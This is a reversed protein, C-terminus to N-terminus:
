SIRVTGQTNIDTYIVQSAVGHTKFALQMAEGVTASDGTTFAIVSPGAGSLAAGLGGSTTVAEIVSILGPVLSARYPQHLKDHCAWRLHSYDGTCFASVLLAARGVNHTADRFSVKAPLVNRAKKTSLHFAPIAVVMNLPKTPKIAIYKVASGQMCAAVLGGFLAPAVNDPHGEMETAMDLLQDPTFPQGVLHNAAVLGGIIAAASSGLGRSLPINNEQKIRLGPTQGVRKFVKTAAKYVLNGKDLPLENTGEGRVAIELGTPIREMELYNYINLALGLADFGPGLNATTAPIRLRVNM